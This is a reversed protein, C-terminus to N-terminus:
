PAERGAALFPVLYEAADPIVHGAGELWVVRAHPVRARLREAAARSDLMVDKEGYVALVPMSLRALGEDPVVPLEEAIPLFGSLILNVFAVVEPPLAAGGSLSPDITLTGGSKARELPARNVGALGGASILALKSVRAPYKAALGLALFGGLSNGAVAAAGISLAGMLENLWDAYGDGHLDLRNEASNGAEGLIDVALVRHTPSLATMEGFWFASNACSGHLLIVPPNGPAGAALVFTKGFSTEVYKKEFPIAGLIQNYRGLIKERMERSKFVSKM